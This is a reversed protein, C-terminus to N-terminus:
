ATETSTEQSAFVATSSGIILRPLLNAKCAPDALLTTTQIRTPERAILGFYGSRLCILGRSRGSKTMAARVIGAHRDYESAEASDTM